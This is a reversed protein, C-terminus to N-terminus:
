LIPNKYFEKSNHNPMIPSILLNYIENMIMKKTYKIIFYMKLFYFILM